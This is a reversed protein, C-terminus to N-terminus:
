KKLKMRWCKISKSNTKIVQKPKSGIINDYDWVFIKINSQYEIKCTDIKTIM